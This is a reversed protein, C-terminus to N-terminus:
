EWAPYKLVRAPHLFSDGPWALRCSAIATSDGGVSGSKLLGDKPFPSSRQSLSSRFSIYHLICPLGIGTFITFWPPCSLAFSFINSRMALLNFEHKVEERCFRFKEIDLIQEMSLNDEHFGEKLGPLISFGRHM